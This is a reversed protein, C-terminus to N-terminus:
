IPAGVVVDVEFVVGLFFGEIKTEGVFGVYWGSTAAWSFFRSFFFLGAPSRPLLSSVRGCERKAAAATWLAAGSTLRQASTCPCFLGRAETAPGIPAAKKKAKAGAGGRAKWM